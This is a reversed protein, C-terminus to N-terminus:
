LEPMKVCRVACSHVNSEDAAAVHGGGQDTAQDLLTELRSVDVDVLLWVGGQYDPNVALRELPSPAPLETEQGECWLEIAEQAMRPLDDFRDAATFCGPFDPITAGHANADDGLHVYVPYLM